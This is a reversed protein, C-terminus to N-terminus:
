VICTHTRKNILWPNSEIWSCIQLQRVGCSESMGFLELLPMDLSLFFELTEKMIPAAGTYCKSAYQLGLRKKIKKFVLLKALCYCCPADTRRDMNFWHNIPIQKIWKPFCKLYLIKLETLNIGERNPM